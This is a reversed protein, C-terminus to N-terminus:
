KWSLLWSKQETEGRQTQASCKGTLWSKVVILFWSLPLRRWSSIGWLCKTKTSNFPVDTVKERSHKQSASWKLGLNPWTYACCTNCFSHACQLDTLSFLLIMTVSFLEANLGTRTCSCSKEVSVPTNHDSQKWCSRCDSSRGFVNDDCVQIHKPRHTHVILM